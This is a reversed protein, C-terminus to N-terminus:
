LVLTPRPSNHGRVLGFETGLASHHEFRSHTSLSPNRTGVGYGLELASAGILLDSLPIRIGKAQSQGDLQGARLAIPVTVPQIPVGTLLEDLFRQRRDRREATDARAIGHALELVTVVSVAIGEDGTELAVSELLQRANKGQREAAVAATSDLM